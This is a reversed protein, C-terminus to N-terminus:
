RYSARQHVLVYARDFNMSSEADEYGKGKLAGFHLPWIARMGDSELSMWQIAGTIKGHQM